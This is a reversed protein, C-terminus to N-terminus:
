PKPSDPVPLVEVNWKDGDWSCRLVCARPVPKVDSPETPQFAAKEAAQRLAEDVIEYGTSVLTTM